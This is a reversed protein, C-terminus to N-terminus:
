SKVLVTTEILASEVLIWPDAGSSKMAKDTDAYLNVLKKVKLAGLKKAHPALKGLAFPHAGVDKAVDATSKSTASLAALQYIQGSLLGFTMYADQTAKLVEVVGMIKKSDGGLASEMLLFVSETPNPEVYKTIADESGDEVAALKAIADALMWQDLGVRQVLFRVAKPTIDLGQRKAEQEVWAEAQMTDREGWKTYIQVNALKAIAKYTSTRKDPSPEVLVVHIDDSVRPLWEPLKGWVTKNSSLDKIVVLRESAFLTVGALLDPLQSIELESGDVVEATGAFDDIIRGLNHRIEFDNNGTLLTIM